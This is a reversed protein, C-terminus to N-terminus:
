ERIGSEPFLWLILLSIISFAIVINSFDPRVPSGQWLTLVATVGVVAASVTFKHRVPM